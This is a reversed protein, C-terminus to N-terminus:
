LRRVGAVMMLTAQSMMMSFHKAMGLNCFVAPLSSMLNEQRHWVHLADFPLCELAQDMGSWSAHSANISASRAFAMEIARVTDYQTVHARM